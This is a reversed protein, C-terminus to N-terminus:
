LNQTYSWALIRSIKTGQGMPIVKISKAELKKLLVKLPRVNEKKSVLTTFWTINKSFHKSQRCMNKLFAIEGGDCWLENQQGGFNLIDKNKLQLNKAKRRSAAAALDKSAHFPPNCISVDFFDNEQIIGRFIDKTNEQFRLSIHNELNNTNVIHNAASLSKKEIDVGVFSWGYEQHGLIPYICNAGVGIDLCSVETGTPIIENNNEALLDALYHIYDVRGPIPACLFGEPIDWEKINYYKFLLAKNLMKVATPDSFDISLDGHKNQKIFPKLNPFSESLAILNYRSKHKNRPHLLTKESM